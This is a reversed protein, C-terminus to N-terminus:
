SKVSLDFITKWNRELASVKSVITYIKKWFSCTGSNIFYVPDAFAFQPKVIREDDKM